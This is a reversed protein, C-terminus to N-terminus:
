PQVPRVELDVRVTTGEVVTLGPPIKLPATVTTDKTLNAVTIPYTELYASQRELLAPEGSLTVQDPQIKAVSVLYRRPQILDPVRVAVKRTGTAGKGSALRLFVSELMVNVDEVRDGNEDLARPTVKVGGSMSQRPDISVVVYKVRKLTEQTGEVPADVPQTLYEGVVTGPPPTTIFSVTIPFITQDLKEALITVVPPKGVLSVHPPLSVTTRHRVTGTRTIDSVNVKVKVEDPQLYDLTDSNGKLKLIVTLNDPHLEAKIGSVRGELMVPIRPFTRDAILTEQSVRVYLWLFIALVIALILTPRDINRV